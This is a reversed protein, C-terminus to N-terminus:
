GPFDSSAALAEIEGVDYMRDGLKQIVHHRREEPTMEMMLKVMEAFTGHYLGKAGDLLGQGDDKRHIEARDDWAVGNQSPEANYTTPHDSM